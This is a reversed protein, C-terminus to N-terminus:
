AAVVRRTGFWAGLKGFTDQAARIMLADNEPSSQRLLAQRFAQWRAPVDSGYSQFYRYGEGDRLGLMREVHRSIFQGGLTSGEIVYAAGLINNETDAAPLETCRPLEELQEASYGFHMLDEALWATKARGHRAVHHAPLREALCEEWPRIFGYFSELQAVYVGASDPLANLRELSDHHQRTQQKLEELLM